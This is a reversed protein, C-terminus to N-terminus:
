KGASRPPLDVLYLTGRVEMRDFALLDGRPSWNPYRTIVESSTERTVATRAGTELDFVEINWIGSGALVGAAVRRGDPSFSGPWFQGDAPSVQTAVGTVADAVFMPMQGGVKKELALRRGDPSWVPFSYGDFLPWPEFTRAALSGRGVRNVPEGLTATVTDGDPAVRPFSAARPLPLRETVAGTELDAEVLFPSLGILRLAFLRRDSRWTPYMARRGGDIVRRDNAGDIDMVRIEPGFDYAIRRGDPSIAPHGGLRLRRPEGAPAGTATIPLTWVEDRPEVLALAAVRGGPAISGARVGAPLRDLVLEPLTAQRAPADGVGLRLLRDGFFPREVGWAVVGSPGDTLGLVRIQWNEARQTLLGDRVRVSWFDTPGNRATGFYVTTGDPSWLPAGHGGPPEGARTLARPPGSGDSPVLLLHSGPQPFESVWEDSQFVIWAGDPSWAPRSGFPSIQRAAGGEAAMVWVGKRRASHYALRTSDPSWAPHVNRMGDATLPRSQPADLDRLYIEFDGSRDSVLALLRGSPAFTVDLISGNEGALPRPTSGPAESQRSLLGWAALAVAVVAALATVLGRRRPAPAAVALAAPPALPPVGVSAVPAEPQLEAIFRYGRTPVTEIVRADAADDGLERRLQAIIRTLANPTVAVDAWVGDLLEDKTVLRGPREVLFRLVEIAKPELSLRRGARTVDFRDVDLEVDSFRYRSVPVGDNDAVVGGAAGSPVTRTVLRLGRGGIARFRRLNRAM